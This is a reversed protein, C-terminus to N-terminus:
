VLQDLGGLGLEEHTFFPEAYSAGIRGGFYAAMNQVMEPVTSKNVIFQSHYTRIAQMKKEITASVDICFTPVFNM